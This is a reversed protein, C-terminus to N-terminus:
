LHLARLLDLLTVTLNSDEPIHRRTTPPHVGVNRRFISGREESYLPKVNESILCCIVRFQRYRVVLGCPTVDLFVTSM